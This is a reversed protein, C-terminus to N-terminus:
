GAIDDEKSMVVVIVKGGVSKRIDPSRIAGNDTRGGNHFRKKFLFPRCQILDIYQIGNVVRVRGGNFEATHSYLEIIVLLASIVSSRRALPNGPSYIQISCVDSIRYCM